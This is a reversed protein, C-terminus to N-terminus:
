LGAAYINSDLGGQSLCPDSVVPSSYSPANIDNPVYVCGPQYVDFGDDDDADGTERPDNGPLVDRADTWVGYVKGPVASVYIYDGMFPSRRSGFQEWSLNSGATTATTESWTAGGDTSRAPVVNIGNGSNTGAATNGAPRNPDFGPDARSDYFIATITGDASAIDPFWQHGASM